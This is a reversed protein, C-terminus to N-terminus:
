RYTFAQAAADNLAGGIEAQIFPKIGERGTLQLWFTDGAAAVEIIFSFFPCCLRENVIFEAASLLLRTDAPLQFAYGNPLERIARVKAFLERTIALHQQRDAPAIASMDCCFLQEQETDVM